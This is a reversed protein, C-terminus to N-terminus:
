PMTNLKFDSAEMTDTTEKAIQMEIGGSSAKANHLSVMFTIYNFQM